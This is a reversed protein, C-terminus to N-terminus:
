TELTLLVYQEQQPGLEIGLVWTFCSCSEVELPIQYRWGGIPGGSGHTCVCM